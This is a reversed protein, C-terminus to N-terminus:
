SSRWAGRHDSESDWRIAERVPEAAAADFSAHGVTRAIFPAVLREVALVRRLDVVDVRRDQVQETDVVRFQGEAVVGDVASQGIHM